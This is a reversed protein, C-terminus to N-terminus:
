HAGEVSPAVAQRLDSALLPETLFRRFVAARNEGQLLPEMLRRGYSYTFIYPKMLPTKLEEVLFAAEEDPQLTYRVIYDRVEDDPYGEHLMFAANCSVDELLTYSAFYKEPDSGDPEIGVEPLIEQALWERMERPSWFMEAAWTAIGEAQLLQPGMTIFLSQELNGKERYLHQEKLANETHHGPYGEHCLMAPLGALYTPMDATREIRSRYSGLYWSAASYPRDRIVAVEVGEGPPLEIRERTRRRAEDLTREMISPLLEMRDEPLQYHRLWALEREALSGPGPLAQEKLELAREFQSEPTWTPRIDFYAETEDELSLQEGTLTRCLTEMARVQRALFRRRRAEFGQSDLSDALAACAAVLEAASMDPEADAAEKWEPPGYYHDAYWGDGLDAFSRQIHFALGVYRALWAEDMM